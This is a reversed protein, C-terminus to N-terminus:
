KKQEIELLRERAEASRPGDPYFVIYWTFETKANQLADPSGERYYSEAYEYKADHSYEGEEYTTLLTQFILRAASHCGVRSMEVGKALLEFDLGARSARGFPVVIDLGSAGAAGNKITILTANERTGTRPYFVVTRDFSPTVLFYEGPTVALRYAGAADTKTLYSRLDCRTASAIAVVPVGVKPRGAADRVTGTLTGIGDQRAWLPMLFLVM